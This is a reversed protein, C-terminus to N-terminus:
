AKPDSKQCISCIGIIQIKVETARFGRLRAAPRIDDLAPDIFDTVRHCRTCVLHHHREINADYRKANGPLSVESVLGALELSEITKYVTGIPLAPQHALVRQHITEITPHEDTVLLERYIALRQPTAKLGAERIRRAIEPMDASLSKSNMPTAM